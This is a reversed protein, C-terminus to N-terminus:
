QEYEPTWNRIVGPLCFILFPFDGFNFLVCSNSSLVCSNSHWPYEFQIMQLMHLWNQERLKESKWLKYQTTWNRIVGPLYFILFPSDGFNSLVRSNSHRLYEFQIMHLMHLWNKGRLLESKWLEYQPTGNRIVGPLCFKRKFPCDSRNIPVM